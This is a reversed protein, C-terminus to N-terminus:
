IKWKWSGRSNRSGLHFRELQQWVPSYLKHRVRQRERFDTEPQENQNAPAQTYPSRDECGDHQSEKSHNQPRIEQVHVNVAAAKRSRLRDIKLLHQFVRREGRKRQQHRDERKMFCALRMRPRRWLLSLSAEKAAVAYVVEKREDHFCESFIQFKRRNRMSMQARPLHQSHPQRHQPQLLQPDFIRDGLALADNCVHLDVAAHRIGHRQDGIAPQTLARQFEAVPAFHGGRENIESPGHPAYRRSPIRSALQGRFTEPFPWPRPVAFPM